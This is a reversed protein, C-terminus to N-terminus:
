LINKPLFVTLNLGFIKEPLDTYIYLALSFIDDKQIGIEILL